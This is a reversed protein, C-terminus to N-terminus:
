VEYGAALFEKRLDVEWGRDKMFIYTIGDIDSPREVEETLLVAVNSRGLKALFYGLELIVNQRARKKLVLTGEKEFDGQLAGIDDPTVVVVAFGVDSNAEIKEFITKSQNAQEHLIVPILGHDHLYKAVRYKPLEDRGHVIFVKSNKIKKVEPTIMENQRRDPLRDPKRIGQVQQEDGTKFLRSYAKPANSFTWDEFDIQEAICVLNDFNNQGIRELVELINMLYDRDGWQLSRLLRPHHLITEIEDIEYALKTWDSELYKGELVSALTSIFFKKNEDRVIM